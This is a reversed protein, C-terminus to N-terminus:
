PGQFDAPILRNTHSHCTSLPSIDIHARHVGGGARLYKGRGLALQQRSLKPCVDVLPTADILCAARQEAEVRVLLGVAVAMQIRDALVQRLAQRHLDKVRDGQVDALFHRGMGTCPHRQLRVIVELDLGDATTGIDPQAGCAVDHGRGATDGLHNRCAAVHLQVGRATADAICGQARQANLHTLPTQEISKGLAVDLELGHGASQIHVPDHGGLARDADGHVGTVEGQPADIGHAAHPQLRRLAADAVDIVRRQHRQGVDGAAHPANGQQSRLVNAARGRARHCGGVQVHAGARVTQVHRGAAVRPHTQKVRDGQTGHIHLAAIEIQNGYGAHVHHLQTGLLTRDLHRQALHRDIGGTRQLQGMDVDLLPQHQAGGVGQCQALGAGGDDGQVAPFAHSALVQASAGAQVHAGGTRQQQVRHVDRRASGRQIAHARHGQACQRHLTRQVGRGSARERGVLKDAPITRDREGAAGCDRAIHQAGVSAQVHAGGIRQRQVRHVDQRPAGREGAHARHGQVCQRHTIRQVGRGGAREHGVLKDAPVTRDRQGAAGSDRSM